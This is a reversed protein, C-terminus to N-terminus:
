LHIIHLDYDGDILDIHRLNLLSSLIIAKPLQEGFTEVFHGFCCVRVQMRISRDDDSKISLIGEDTLSFEMGDLMAPQRKSFHQQYDTTFRELIKAAKSM